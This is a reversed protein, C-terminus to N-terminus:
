MVRVRCNGCYPDSAGLLAGNCYPCRERGLPVVAAKQQHYAARRRGRLRYIMIALYDSRCAALREGFNYHGHVILM